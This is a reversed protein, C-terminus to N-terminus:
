NDIDKLDTEGNEEDEDCLRQVFRDLRAVLGLAMTLGGCQHTFGSADGERLPERQSAILLNPFRRELEAVLQETTATALVEDM